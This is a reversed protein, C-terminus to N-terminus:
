RRPPKNHSEKLGKMSISFCNLTFQSQKDGNRM